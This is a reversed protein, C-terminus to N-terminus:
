FLKKLDRELEKYSVKGDYSYEIIGNKMVLTYPIIGTWKFTKQIFYQLNLADEGEIIPYNIKYKKIYNKAFSDSMKSQVQISVIALKNKFKNYIKRTSPIEKICDSVEKGFIKLIIIKGKYQPFYLGRKREEINIIKGEISKLSHVVHVDENITHPKNEDPINNIEYEGFSFSEYFNSKLMPRQSSSAFVEGGVKRFFTEIPMKKNIYKSLALAYPSHEEGDDATKGEATAFSIIMGGEEPTHPQVLGRKQSKTCSPYTNDRCADIMLVALKINSMGGILFDLNLAESKLQGGKAIMAKTPILYNIGKCQVGHGAYYVVAIDDKKVKRIFTNINEKMQNVSKINKKITVDFGVERLKQAILDADKTPNPLYGQNYNSNGIVLAVKKASALNLILMIMLVIRM